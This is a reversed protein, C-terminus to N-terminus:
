DEKTRELETQHSLRMQLFNGAGDRLVIELNKPKFLTFHVPWIWDHL